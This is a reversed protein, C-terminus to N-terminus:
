RGLIARALADAGNERMTHAGCERVRWVQDDIPRAFATFTTRDAYGLWRAEWFSNYGAGTAV